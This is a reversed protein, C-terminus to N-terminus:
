ILTIILIYKPRNIISRFINRITISNKVDTNLAISALVIVLPNTTKINTMNIILKMEEWHSRQMVDTHVAYLSKKQNVIVSINLVKESFM